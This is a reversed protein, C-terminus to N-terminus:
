AMNRSAVLNVDSGALNARLVTGVKVPLKVRIGKVEEMATFLLEKPLPRDTKVPLLRPSNEIAVVATLVRRPTTIETQAYTRGRVCRHGTIHLEGSMKPDAVTIQCGLPCVICTLKTM